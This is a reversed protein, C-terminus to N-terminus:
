IPNKWAIPILRSAPIRNLLLEVESLEFYNCFVKVYMKM